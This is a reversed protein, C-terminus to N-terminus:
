ALMKIFEPVFLKILVYFGTPGIVHNRPRTFLM